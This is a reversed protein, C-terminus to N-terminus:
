KCCLPSQVSYPFTGWSHFVCKRIKNFSGATLGFGLIEELSSTPNKSSNVTNFKLVHCLFDLSTPLGIVFNPLAFTCGKVVASKEPELIDPIEEPTQYRQEIELGM